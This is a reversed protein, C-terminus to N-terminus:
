QDFVRLVEIIKVLVEICYATRAVGAGVAGLVGRAGLVGVFEAM